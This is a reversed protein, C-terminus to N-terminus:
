ERSGVGRKGLAEALLEATYRNGKSTMQGFGEGRDAPLYLDALAGPDAAALARLANFQDVVELGASGACAAVQRADADPETREAVTWRAHQMLVLLRVGAADTRAKLRQLLACAVAVRDNGVTRVVSKGAKGLWYGPAVQALVTDLLASHGLVGRATSRWDSRSPQSLWPPQPAHYALGAKDLTYYPKAAGNFSRGTRAISEGTIGVVLTKPRVVPLLREARLVIQDTAYNAVGANLVPMGLIHELHAPWTQGDAVEPGGGTFADGVALVGDTRLEPECCNRRIGYDLTNFGRSAYWARPAWGLEADFHLRDGYTIDEIRGARWDELALAPRSAHLRYGLEIVLLGLLTWACTLAIRTPLAHLLHRMLPRM